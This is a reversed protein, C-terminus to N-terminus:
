QCEVELASGAPGRSSRRERETLKAVSQGPHDCMGRSTPPILPPWSVSHPFQHCRHSPPPLLGSQALDSLIPGHPKPTTAPLDPPQVRPCSAPSLTPSTIPRPLPCSTLFQCGPERKYTHTHLLLAAAQAPCAAESSHTHIPPSTQSHSAETNHTRTHVTIHTCM